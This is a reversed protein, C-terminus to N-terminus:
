GTRKSKRENKEEEEQPQDRNALLHKPLENLMAKYCIDILRRTWVGKTFAVQVGKDTGQILVQHQM